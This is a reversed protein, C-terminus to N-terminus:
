RLQNGAAQRVRGSGREPASANGLQFITQVAGTNLYGRRIVHELAISLKKASCMVRGRDGNIM